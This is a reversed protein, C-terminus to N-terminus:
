KSWQQQQKAMEISAEQYIQEARKSASLVRLVKDSFRKLEKWEPEVSRSPTGAVMAPDPNTGDHVAGPPLYVIAGNTIIYDFFPMEPEKWYTLSYRSKIPATLLKGNQITCIPFRNSPGKLVSNVRVSWEDDTLWEVPIHKREVACGPKSITKLWSLSSFYRYDEPLDIVGSANAILPTNNISDGITKVFARSDDTITSNEEYFSRAEVYLELTGARCATTFNVPTVIGSKQGKNLELNIFKFIDGLNEM